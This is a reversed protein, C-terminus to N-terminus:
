VQKKEKAEKSRGDLKKEILPETLTTETTENKIETVGGNKGAFFAAKIAEFEAKENALKQVESKIEDQAALLKTQVFHEAAKENTIDPTHSFGNKLFKAVLHDPVYKGKVPDGTGNRRPYLLTM